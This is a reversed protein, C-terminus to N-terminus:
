RSLHGCCFKMRHSFLKQPRQRLLLFMSSCQSSSQLLLERQRTATAQQISVTLLKAGERVARVEVREELQLAKAVSLTQRGALHRESRERFFDFPITRNDRVGCHRCGHRGNDCGRM